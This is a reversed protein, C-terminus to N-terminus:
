LVTYMMMYVDWLGNRFIGKRLKKKFKFKLWVKWGKQNKIEDRLFCMIYSISIM